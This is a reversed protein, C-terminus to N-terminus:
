DSQDPSPAEAGAQEELQAAVRKNAIWLAAGVLALPGVVLLMEDWGGQHALM